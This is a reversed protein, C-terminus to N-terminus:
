LLKINYSTGTPILNGMIINEKLGKLWDIRGMIAAKTLIRTTEQFCASSIFSNKSLSSKSIGLVIPEYKIKNKLTKNIKIIKNTELIEGPLFKKLKDECIIIKSTM